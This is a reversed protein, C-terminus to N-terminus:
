IGAHEAHLELRLYRQVSRAPSQSPQKGEEPGVLPEALVM